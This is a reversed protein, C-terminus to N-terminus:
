MISCDTPDDLAHEDQTQNSHENVVEKSDPHANEDGNEQINHDYLLVSQRPPKLLTSERRTSLRPYRSTPPQRDTSARRVVTTGSVTTSPAPLENNAVLCLLYLFCYYHFHM